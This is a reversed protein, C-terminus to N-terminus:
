AAPVRLQNRMAQDFEEPLVIGSSPLPPPPRRRWHVNATAIFKEEDTKLALIQAVWADEDPLAYGDHFMQPHCCYRVIPESMGDLLAVNGEFGNQKIEYRNGASGTIRIFGESEYEEYEEATMVLKLLELANAQAAERQARREEGQARRRRDEELHEQYARRRREVYEPDPEATRPLENPSMRRSSNLHRQAGNTTNTIQYQFYWGNWIEEVTERDFTVPTATATTNWAIQNPVVRQYNTVTTSWQNWQYEFGHFDITPM